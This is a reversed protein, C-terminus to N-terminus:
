MKFETEGLVIPYSLSEIQISGANEKLRIKYETKGLVILYSPSEFSPIQDLRIKFVSQGLVILYSLLYFSVASSPVGSGPQEIVNNGM